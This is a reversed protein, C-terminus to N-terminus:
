MQNKKLHERSLREMRQCRKRVFYWDEGATTKRFPAYLCGAIGEVRVVFQVSQQSTRVSAMNSM